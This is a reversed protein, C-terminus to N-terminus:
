NNIKAKNLAESLSKQQAELSAKVAVIQDENKTFQKEIKKDFNLFKTDLKNIDESTTKELNETQVLNDKLRTEFYKKLEEQSALSNELDSRLSTELSRFDNKIEKSKQEIKKLNTCYPVIQHLNNCSPSCDLVIQYM